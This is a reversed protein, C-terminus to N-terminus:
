RGGGPPGRQPGGAGAPDALDASPSGGVGPTALAAADLVTLQGAHNPVFREVRETLPRCEDEGQMLLVSVGPEVLELTGHFFDSAHEPRTRIWQMEELICMGYYFTEPWTPM